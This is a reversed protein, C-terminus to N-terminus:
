AVPPIVLPRTFNDASRFRRLIGLANDEIQTPRVGFADWDGEVDADDICRRELEDPCVMPFWPLQALRATALLIPKPLYPVRSPPLYAVSQVFELLYELTFTAPGPLSFTGPAQTSHMLNALAQAVDIVHVPRMKTEGGNVQWWMPWYAMNTLLKDELGYMAAPRIITANPFVEKVLEEGEAKARYFKSKSDHSANLHSLHVFRPVGAQAAIRAIREAGKAHVDEFSFNKTEYDRGVLNYVIDSHRLCEEIQQENRIDWEMPVIQGLDGALKLHRKEDEERYPIVVQTGMKGLKSVVYRGLFGTCGFVTVIHGSVASYGPTGHSIIPKNPVPTVLDHIARKGAPVALRQLRLLKSSSSLM